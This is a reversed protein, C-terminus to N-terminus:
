DDEDYDDRDREYDDGGGVHRYVVLRGERVAQRIVGPLSELTLRDDYKIGTAHGTLCIGSDIIRLTAQDCVCELNRRDVRYTVIMEGRQPAIRHDVYVAGGAALSARAAEAFDVLAMQRRGVGTGLAQALQARREEQARRAEEAARERELEARIRAAEARQWSEMRFAADLAPTVDKVDQVSAAQRRYAALVAEEPGLPFDQRIFVLEGDDCIRGAVIRAFRDLGPEILQVPESQEAIKSPEPNVNTGDIVLRDGILYGRAIACLSEEQPGANKSFSATRGGINWEYWGSERPLRGKIEWVREGSRLSRGGLWPLVKTEDPKPLLDRWSM